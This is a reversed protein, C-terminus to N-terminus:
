IVVRLRDGQRIDADVACELVHRVRARPLVFRWPNSRRVEIVHLGRDLLVVALEFRMGITHVSRTRELLLAEGRALPDRGLLGRM